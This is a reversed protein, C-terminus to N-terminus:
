KSVLLSGPTNISSPVVTRSDEGPNSGLVTKPPQGENKYDGQASWGDQDQVRRRHHKTESSCFTDKIPSSVLVKKPTRIEM